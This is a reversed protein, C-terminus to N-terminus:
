HCDLPTPILLRTQAKPEVTTLSAKKDLGQNKYKYEKCVVRESPHSSGLFWMAFVLPWAGAHQQLTRPSFMILNKLSQLTKLGFCLARKATNASRVLLAVLRRTLGNMHFHTEGVPENEHLDFENEYSLNQVIVQKSVSACPLESIALQRPKKYENQGNHYSTRPAPNCQVGFTTAINRCCKKFLLHFSGQNFVFSLRSFNEQSLLIIYKM